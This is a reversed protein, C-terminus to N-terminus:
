TRQATRGERDFFWENAEALDHMHEDSVQYEAEKELVYRAEDRLARLFEECDQRFADGFGPERETDGWNFENRYNGFGIAERSIFM